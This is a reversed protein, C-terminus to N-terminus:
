GSFHSHSVKRVLLEYAYNVSLFTYLLNCFQFTMQLSKVLVLTSIFDELMRSCEIIMEHHKICDTLAIALENRFEPLYNDQPLGFIKPASPLNRAEECNADVDDLLKPGM